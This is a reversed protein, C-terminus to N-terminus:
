FITKQIVGRDTTVDTPIGLVDIITPTLIGVEPENQFYDSNLGFQNNVGDTTKSFMMYRNVDYKKAAEMAYRSGSDGEGQRYSATLIVAKSFMAQLRDRDTFRKIAEYKNKPENYYESVLLGGTRIIEEALEKNEAPFVNAISSPLVAITKGGQKIATKHAVTDCGKALGSVVCVGKDVLRGVFEQERKVIDESPNILGIVAVNREPYKMLSIDGRYFLLYSKESNNKVHKSIIPFEDDFISICQINSDMDNDFQAQIEGRLYEMDEGAESKRITASCYEPTGDFFNKFFDANTKIIGLKTAALITLTIETMHQLNYRKELQIFLYPIREV